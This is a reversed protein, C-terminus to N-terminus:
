VFIFNDKSLIDILNKKNIENFEIKFNEYDKFNYNSLEFINVINYLNYIDNLYNTNKDLWEYFNNENSKKFKDFYKLTKYLSTKKDINYDTGSAVCIERFEYLTLNLEKLINDLNYLIVTHNVLSFYRLVNTCGYVFMDTDESLCAFVKKKQVMKVCLEDAEGPATCYSVGYNDMINKVNQIQDNTVRLFKKKLNDMQDLIDQQYEKDVDDITKKLNEFQKYAEKKVNKREELTENKLTPPKGDFIFVPKINYKRFISIMLYINEYLANEALFKYIYISIDIAISKNKLCSLHIQKISRCNDRMFKNLYRIGMNKNLILSNFLIIEIKNYFYKFM